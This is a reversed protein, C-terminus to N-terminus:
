AWSGTVGSRGRSRLLQSGLLGVNERVRQRDAGHGEDPLCNDRTRGRPPYAIGNGLFREGIFTWSRFSTSSFGREDDVADAVVNRHRYLRPVAKRAEGGGPNVPRSSRELDYRIRATYVIWSTDGVLNRLVKANTLGRDVPSGLLAMCAIVQIAQHAPQAPAPGDARYSASSVAGFYLVFSM